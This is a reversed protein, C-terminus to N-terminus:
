CRASRPLMFKEREALFDGRVMLVAQDLAHPFAQFNVELRQPNFYIEVEEIPQLIREVIAELTCVHTGVVDFIKLTTNEIEMVVIVDLDSSYYLPNSGENVFFVAKEDNVVGVINSVPERTELLRHLLKLDNTDLLNLLRFGSRHSMSNCKTKFLHEEVVRFGFPQYFEPQLTTLVLTNYHRDCYDLVETMVERYYGRRRFKPHTCVGHIGGVTVTEGMLRLNMKLVGVHTVAIDDQFKIFPTSASEWSAGLKRSMSAAAIIEPFVIEVLTFLSNSLTLEQAFSKQFRYKKMLNSKPVCKKQCGVLFIKTIIENFIFYNKLFIRLIRVIIYNTM